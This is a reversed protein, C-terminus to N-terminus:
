KNQIYEILFVPSVLILIPLVLIWFLGFVYIQEPEFSTWSQRDVFLLCGMVIFAILFYILVFVWVNDM